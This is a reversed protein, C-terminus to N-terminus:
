EGKKGPASGKKPKGGDAPAAMTSSTLVGAGAADDESLTVVADDESTDPEAYGKQILERGHQEITEFPTGEVLTQGGLYLPKLTKLKM